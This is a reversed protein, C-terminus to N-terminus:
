TMAGARRGGRSEILLKPEELDFSRITRVADYDPCADDPCEPVHGDFRAL